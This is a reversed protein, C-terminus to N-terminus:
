KGDEANFETRCGLSLPFVSYYTQSPWIITIPLNQERFTKALLHEYTMKDRSYQWYPNKLPTSETIMYNIPPKEFCSASSILIYQRTKNKFRNIIKQVQEPRYAIGKVVVDWEHSKLANGIEAINEIDSVLNKVGIIPNKKGSNLHYLDRAIAMESLPTSINGTGGIFLVKM